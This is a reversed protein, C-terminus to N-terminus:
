TNYYDGKKRIDASVAEWGRTAIDTYYFEIKKRTNPHIISNADAKKFHNIPNDNTWEIGKNKAYVKGAAVGDCLFEVLYKWPMEIPIVKGNTLDVWYQTHHKNRGKHHLWVLSYGNAKREANIPSSTGKYYKVSTNFEEPSFKSLDHLLGQIPRGCRCMAKFVEHKHAIVTKFHLYINKNM